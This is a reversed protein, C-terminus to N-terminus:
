NGNAEGKVTTQESEQQAPQPAPVSQGTAVPTRAKYLAEASKDKLEGGHPEHCLTCKKGEEPTLPNKHKKLVGWHCEMNSCIQPQPQLLRRPYYTGVHPDHCGDLGPVGGVCSRVMLDNHYQRKEFIKERIEQKESHCKYCMKILRLPVIREDPSFGMVARSIPVHIGIHIEQTDVHCARCNGEAFPKHMAAVDAIKAPADGAAPAPEQEPNACCIAWLLTAATLLRIIDM